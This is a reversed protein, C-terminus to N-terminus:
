QAKTDLLQDILAATDQHGKMIALDKPTLGGVDTAALDV